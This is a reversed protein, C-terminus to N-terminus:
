WGGAAPPKKQASEKTPLPAPPSASMSAPPALLAAIVRESLSSLKDLLVRQGDAREELAIVPKDSYLASAQADAAKPGAKIVLVLKGGDKKYTSSVVYRSKELREQVAGGPGKENGGAGIMAATAAFNLIQKVDPACLVDVRKDKGLAACLATTLAAADSALTKDGPVVDDVYVLVRDDAKAAKAADARAPATATAVLAVAALLVRLTRSTTM